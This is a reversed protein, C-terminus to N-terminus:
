LYMKKIWMADNRFKKSLSKNTNKNLTSLYILRRFASLPKITKSRLAKNLSIHRQRETLKNVNDYGYKGFVDKELKVPIKPGKGINGRDKICSPEVKTRKVITSRVKTGDKRVYSSRKYTKKVYGARKIEGKKCKKSSKKVM